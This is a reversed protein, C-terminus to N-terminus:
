EEAPDEARITILGILPTEDDIQIQTLRIPTAKETRWFGGPTLGEGREDYFEWLSLRVQEGARLSKVRRAFRQNLWLTFDEYSRATTNVIELVQNERFVQIDVSDAVHLDDPYPPSALEPAYRPPQCGAAGIV